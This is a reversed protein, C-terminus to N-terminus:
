FPISDIDIDGTELTNSENNQHNSKLEKIAEKDSESLTSTEKAKNGFQFNEVIIETKYMKKGDSEWTKTSLRGEILIQSGKKCWQSIVEAQKGFVVINHFEVDEKKNGDKDKYNRNTAVGFNAVNVGSPLAKLEPDRTLNGILVVKNLYM